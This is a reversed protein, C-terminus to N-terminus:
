DDHPLVVQAVEPLLRLLLKAVAPSAPARGITTIFSSTFSDESFRLLLCSKGVGAPAPAEDTRRVHTAGCGPAGAWPRPPPPPAHRQRRHPPAQHPLRLGPAPHVHSGLSPPPGPLRRPRHDQPQARCRRAGARGPGPGRGAGPPFPGASKRPGKGTTGVRCQLLKSPRFSQLGINKCKLPCYHCYVVM